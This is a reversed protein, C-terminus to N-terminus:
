PCQIQRMNPTASVLVAATALCNKPVLKDDAIVRLDLGRHINIRLLAISLVVLIIWRWAGIGRAERGQKVPGVAMDVAIVALAFVNPLSM